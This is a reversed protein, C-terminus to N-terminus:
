RIAKLDQLSKNTKSQWEAVLLSHMSLMKRRVEIMRRTEAPAPGGTNARLAVNSKPDLAKELDAASFGRESARFGTIEQAIKDLGDM